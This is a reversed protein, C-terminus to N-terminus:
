KWKLDCESELKITEGKKLLAMPFANLISNPKRTEGRYWLFNKIHNSKLVTNSIWQPIARNYWSRCIKVVEKDWKTPLLRLHVVWCDKSDRVYMVQKFKKSHDAKLVKIEASVNDGILEVKRVPYQHYINSDQHVIEESAIKATRFFEKKFVYRTVFDMIFSDKTTTLKHIRTISNTKVKENIGVKWASEKMEVELDVKNSSKTSHFERKVVNNRFGGTELSFFSYSDATEFGWPFIVNENNIILKEILGKNFGVKM